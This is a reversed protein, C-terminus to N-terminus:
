EDGDDPLAAIALLEERSLQSLQVQAGQRVADLDEPAASPKGWGYELLVRAAAVSASDGNALALELAAVAQPSKSRCLERFNGYDAPRGSPNGSQGKQFPRGRPKPKKPQQKVSIAAPQLKRKVSM